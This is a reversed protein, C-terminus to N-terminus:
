LGLNLVALSTMDRNWIRHFVLRRLSNAIAQFLPNSTAPLTFWIILTCIIVSFAWIQSFNLARTRLWATTESLRNRQKEMSQTKRLNFIFQFVLCCFIYFIHQKASKSTKPKTHHLKRQCSFFGLIASPIFKNWWDALSFAFFLTQQGSFIRKSGV